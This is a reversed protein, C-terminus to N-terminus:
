DALEEGSERFSVGKEKGGDRLEWLSRECSM